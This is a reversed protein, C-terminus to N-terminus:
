TMLISLLRICHNQISRKKYDFATCGKVSVPRWHQGLVFISMLCYILLYCCLVESLDNVNIFMVIRISFFILLFLVTINM